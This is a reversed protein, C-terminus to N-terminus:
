RATSSRGTRPPSASCSPPRTPTPRSGGAPPRTTRWPPSSRGTGWLEVQKPQRLASWTDLYYKGNPSMDISHTGKAQTLRRKGGGDFGVAYLHRELPSAETSTYFVTRSGPDIGEVRTVSWPGRTVQNLMRGGYDYRYVHSHGDRDSVWFFERVGEPFTLYDLIGAFFDYVDVWADSREELVLRRGGTNVDFLFLKFHNQARNLTVVALTDRASTWYIRPIYFEGQEGTDLWATAGNTADAVGIRVTPNEDGVKPYAIETWEPHQGQYDSIRFLPVGREDTEWFAIKRSDPSWKWAQPVGFEEEYVWDFVGNFISDSGTTTLRRERGAAMDYAYMDGGREYGLYAGDPSLEATRADDAGLKVSKDGLSFVYYDSVGSHRYIPRFDVQFVLNRSDQAWQFSQYALQRGAGPMVLERAQFIPEDRLTAPDYRRIEGQRTTPNVTTFSFREGEDIWNVSAPGPRGTLLAGAVLAEEVSAFRQRAPQQASAPADLMGCLALLAVVTRRTM